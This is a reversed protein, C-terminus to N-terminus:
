PFFDFIASRNFTFPSNVDEELSLVTMSVVDKPLYAINIEMKLTFQLTIIKSCSTLYFQSM